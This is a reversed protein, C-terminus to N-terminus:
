RGRKTTIIIVGNAGRSGYIATSGADKLVDIRAVDQPAIGALSSGLAGFAVPLGDIVLLPEDGALTGRLGRAGRIRLTYGGSSIPILELGPVRALLMEEVRTYRPDGEAPTVSSVAGTTNRKLQTGYGVSVADDPAPRELQRAGPGTCGVVLAFALGCSPAVVHPRLFKKTNM